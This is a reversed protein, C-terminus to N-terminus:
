SIFSSWREDRETFAVHMPPSSWEDDHIIKAREDSNNMDWVAVHGSAFVAALPAAGYVESWALSVVPSQPYGEPLNLLLDPQACRLVCRETDSEKVMNEVENPIGYIAIGTETGGVALFGIFNFKRDTSSDNKINRNGKSVKGRLLPCWATTLVTGVSLEMLFWLKACVDTATRNYRWFQLYDNELLRPCSSITAIPGGCYAVCGEGANPVTSSSPREATLSNRVPITYPLRRTTFTPLRESPQKECAPENQQRKVTDTNSKSASSSSRAAKESKSSVKATPKSSPSVADVTTTITRDIAGGPLRVPVSHKNLIRNLLKSQTYEEERVVDWNSRDFHIDLLSRCLQEVNRDADFSVRACNVAAQYNRSDAESPRHLSETTKFKYRKVGANISTRSSNTPLVGQSVSAMGRCRTSKLLSTLLEDKDGVDGDEERDHQTSSDMACEDSHDSEELGSALQSTKRRKKASRTLPTTSADKEAIIKHAKEILKSLQKQHCKILHDKSEQYVSTEGCRYCKWQRNMDNVGCKQLHYWLGYSHSYVQSCDLTDINLCPM